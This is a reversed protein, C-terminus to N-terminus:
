KSILPLLLAWLSSHVGGGPHHRSYWPWWPDHASNLRSSGRCGLASNLLEVTYYTHRVGVSSVTSTKALWEFGHVGRIFGLARMAQAGVKSRLCGVVSVARAVISLPFCNLLMEVVEFMGNNDSFEM